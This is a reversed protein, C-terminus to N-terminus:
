RLIAAAPLLMGGAMYPHSLCVSVKTPRRDRFIALRRNITFERNDPKRRGVM